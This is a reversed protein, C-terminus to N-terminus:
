VWRNNHSPHRIPHYLSLPLLPSFLLHTYLLISLLFPILLSLFLLPVILLPPFLLFCLHRYIILLFIFPPLSLRLFSSVLSFLIYLTNGWPILIHSRLRKAAQHTRSQEGRERPRRLVSSSGRGEESKCRYLPSVHHPSIHHSTM